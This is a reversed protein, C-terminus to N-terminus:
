LETEIKYFCYPNNHLKGTFATSMGMCGGRCTDGYKCGKCNEGLLETKFNRNYSFAKLDKWIDVISREKINGEICSNPAALCGIVDGNSKISLITLGAQCGNFEPYLGLCPIFHSHYGFNHAGIVPLEKRSYKKQLTAIYASAAYYEEKSLTLEKQFRGSPAGVQIQWAISKNLLFDKMLPLENINIKSVTTIVTTPLGAKTTLSIANMVRDFSGKVGRIFDHTKATAGDLSFSVAYPDLKKLKSIINEDVFFGNSIFLLEMDLDRVAKGLEYWDKRLFPEGGMFCVEKTKIEALDRILKLGEDTTLEKSRAKGASSGCHICKLNCKLTTEWVVQYPILENVDVM